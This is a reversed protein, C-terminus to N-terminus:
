FFARVGVLFIDYFAPCSRQVPPPPKRAEFVLRSERIRLGDDIAFFPAGVDDGRNDLHLDRRLAVASEVADSGANRFEVFHLRAVQHAAAIVQEDHDFGLIEAADGGKDSFLQARDLGHLRSRRVKAELGVFFIASEDYRAQARAGQQKEMLMLDGVVNTFDGSSIRSKKSITWVMLSTMENPILSGSKAVGQCM